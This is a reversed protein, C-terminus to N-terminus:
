LEQWNTFSYLGNSYTVQIQVTKSFNDIIGTSTITKPNTGSVTITASGSGVQLTEGSYATDRLVRVIGNELGSEAVDYALSGEQVRTASLSNTMLIVTAASTVILVIIVFVLLTVKAQGSQTTSNIFLKNKSM